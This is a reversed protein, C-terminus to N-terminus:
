MHLNFHKNSMTFGNSRKLLTSSSINSTYIITKKEKSTVIYSKIDNDEDNSICKQSDIFYKLESSSNFSNIDIIAIIQNLPITKNNGIHLFM